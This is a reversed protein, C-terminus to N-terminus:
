RYIKTIDILFSLYALRKQEISLNKGLLRLKLELFTLDLTDGQIRNSINKLTLYVLDEWIMFAKEDLMPTPFNIGNKIANELMQSASNNSPDFQGHMLQNRYYNM